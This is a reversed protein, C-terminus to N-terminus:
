IKEGHRQAEATFLRKTKLNRAPFSSPAPLQTLAFCTKLGGHGRHERHYFLNQNEM